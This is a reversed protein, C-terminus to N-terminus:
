RDRVREGDPSHARPDRSRARAGDAVASGISQAEPYIGTWRRVGVAFSGLLTAAAGLILFYRWDETKITECILFGALLAVSLILLFRGPSGHGGELLSVRIGDFFSGFLLGATVGMMSLVAGAAMLERLWQPVRDVTREADVLFSRLASTTRLPEYGPATPQAKAQRDPPTSTGALLGVFGAVIVGPLAALVVVFWNTALRATVTALMSAVWGTYVTGVGILLLTRHERILKRLRGASM